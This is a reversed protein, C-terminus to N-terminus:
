VTPVKEFGSGPGKAKFDHVFSLFMGNGLACLITSGFAYGFKGMEVSYYVIPGSLALAVLGFGLLLGTVVPELHFAFMTGKFAMSNTEARWAHLIALFPCAFNLATYTITMTHWELDKVSSDAAIVIASGFAGLWLAAHILIIVPSAPHLITFADTWNM